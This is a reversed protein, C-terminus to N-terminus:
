PLRPLRHITISAAHKHAVAYLLYMHSPLRTSLFAGRLLMYYTYTDLCTVPLLSRRMECMSCNAWLQGEEDRQGVMSVVRAVEGEFEM